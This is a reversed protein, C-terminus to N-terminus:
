LKRVCLKILTHELDIRKYPNLWKSQYKPTLVLTVLKQSLKTLELLSIQDEHIKLLHQSDSKQRGNKYPFLFDGNTWQCKIMTLM